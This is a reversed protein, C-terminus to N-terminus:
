KNAVARVTLYRLLVVLTPTDDRNVFFLLWSLLNRSGRLSPERGIVAQTILSM